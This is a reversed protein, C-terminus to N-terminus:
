VRTSTAVVYKLKVPTRDGGFLRFEIKACKIVRKHQRLVKIVYFLTWMLPTM